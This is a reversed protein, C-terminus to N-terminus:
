NSTVLPSLWPIKVLKSIGSIILFSFRFHVLSTRKLKIQNQEILFQNKLLILKFIIKITKTLMDIKKLTDM